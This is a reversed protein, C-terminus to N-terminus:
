PVGLTRPSPPALSAAVGAVGPADGLSEDWGLLQQSLTMFIRALAEEEEAAAAVAAAEGGWRKDREASSETEETAPPAPARRLHLRIRALALAWLM